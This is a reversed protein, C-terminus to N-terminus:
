ALKMREKTKLVNKTQTYSFTKSLGRNNNGLQVVNRDLKGYRYKVAVVIVAPQSTPQGESVM